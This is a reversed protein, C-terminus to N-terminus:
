VVKCMVDYIQAGPQPFSTKLVALTEVSKM